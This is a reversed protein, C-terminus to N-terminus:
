GRGDGGKSAESHASGARRAHGAQDPRRRLGGIRFYEFAEPVAHATYAIIRIRGGGPMARVRRCIETGSIEPMSLDLLVVDIGGAALKALADAGGASEEAECGLRKLWAIPLLRNIPNDDVVLVKMRGEGQALAAAQRSFVSGEGPTSRVEIEGGMLEALERCLALGLGTGGHARTEFDHVQRFREFIAELQDHAIGCGTDAVEFACQTPEGPGAPEGARPRHIQARQAGSQEAGAGRAHSRVGADVGVPAECELTVGKAQAVPQYNACVQGVMEAVDEPASRIAM